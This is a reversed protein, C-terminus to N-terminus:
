YQQPNRFALHEAHFPLIENEVFSAFYNIDVIPLVSFILGCHM